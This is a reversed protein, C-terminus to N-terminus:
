LVSISDILIYIPWVNHWKGVNGLLLPVCGTSITKTKFPPPGILYKYHNLSVYIM